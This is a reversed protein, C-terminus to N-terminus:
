HTRFYYPYSVSMLSQVFVFWGMKYYEFLAHVMFFKQVQKPWFKPCFM